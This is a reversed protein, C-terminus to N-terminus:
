QDTASSANRELLNDIKNERAHYGLLIFIAIAAFAVLLLAYGYRKKM